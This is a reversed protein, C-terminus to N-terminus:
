IRKVRGLTEVNQKDLTYSVTELKKLIDKHMKMIIKKLGNNNSNADKEISSLRLELNKMRLEESNARENIVNIDQQVLMRSKRIEHDLMRTSDKIDHDVEERVIKRVIKGIQDLDSKQM